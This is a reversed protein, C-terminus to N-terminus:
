GAKPLVDTVAVVGGGAPVSEGEAYVRTEAYGEPRPYRRVEVTREPVNVIWYEPVGHRAYLASKETRDFALSTVSVELAVIVDTAPDPDRDGYDRPAGRLVLADPEPEGEENLPFSMQIALHFGPGFAAQLAYYALKLALNHPRGQPMREYIVGGILETGSDEPLLGVEAM